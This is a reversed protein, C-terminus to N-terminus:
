RSEMGREPEWVGKFLYTDSTPTMDTNYPKWETLLLETLTLDFIPM